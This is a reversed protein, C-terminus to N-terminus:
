AEAHRAINRLQAEWGNNNMRFAELRRGPPVKDFGAEVVTLVTGSGPADSLTFTVSTPEESNYDVAPGIPYPHWRYAFVDQPDIREVVVDFLIHEHGCHTIQGSTRQGVAFNQGKLNAGFWTGFEEATTLARWVKDRPANIIVKREIRDTETTNSM